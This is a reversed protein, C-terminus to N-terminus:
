SAREVHPHVRPLAEVGGVEDVLPRLPPDGLHQAAEALLAV